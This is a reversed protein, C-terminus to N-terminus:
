MMKLQMAWKLVEREIINIRDFIEKQNQEIESIRKEKADSREFMRAMQIKVANLDQFIGRLFFANVAGVLALFSGVISLVLGIEM